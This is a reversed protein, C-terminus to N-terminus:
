FGVGFGVAESSGLTVGVRLRWGEEFVVDTGLDLDFNLDADDGPGEPPDDRVLFDLALRPHAYPVVSYHEAGLERGLTLGLPIRVRATSRDPVTGVGMGSAWAVSLPSGDGAAVLGSEVEVGGLLALDGGVDGAGGRLGVDLEGGPKRWTGVAAGDDGVADGPDLSVAYVGFGRESGPPRFSPADFVQAAGAGPLAVLCAVALWPARHSM